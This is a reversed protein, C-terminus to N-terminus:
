LILLELPSIDTKPGEPFYVDKKIWDIKCYEIKQQLRSWQSYILKLLILIRDYSIM